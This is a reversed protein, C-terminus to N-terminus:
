LAITICQHCLLLLTVIDCYAQAITPLAVSTAKQNKVCETYVPMKSLFQYNDNGTASTIPPSLSPETGPDELAIFQTLFPIEDIDSNNIRRFIAFTYNGTELTINVSVTKNSIVNLTPNGYASYVVVCSINKNEGDGDDDDDAWCKVEVTSGVQSISANIPNKYSRPKQDTNM